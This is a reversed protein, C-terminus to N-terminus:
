FILNILVCILVGFLTPLAAALFTWGLSGTEKKITILTTSCPWHMLTFIMASVANKLTWSNERLLEAASGSEMVDLLSEGGSYIMMAIPMVTENAPFGLIFATLMSGDLGMIRGLPELFAVAYNVLPVGGARVNMLIWIVLGAPFAVAVARLLLKLTRDFLSRVLIKGICPRRYPPLELAFSSPMGRLLTKSLLSTSAFTACIGILIIGTLALASLFAGILGGSGVAFASILTLLAPLRGNCPVFSNTLIALLRERPSDIIRCGVVGAANCGFGMCMTLSQKGCANCCKFPKDLNFAIRPLYGIDELFTFLPFFIAMPPLMVAVTFALTSYAGDVFAARIIEPIHLLEFCRNIAPVFSFLLGSLLESPVGAGSVTIWFCIVLLLLMIPIGIRKSTLIRDIKRDRLDPEGSFESVEGAIEEATRVCDEVRLEEGATPLPRSGSSLSSDILELLPRSGGRKSAATAVVPLSILESLKETDIKIGKREAEDMLNLCLVTRKGLARIGLALTLNRELSTADCVVVILDCASNLLFDRTVEEEPSHALLSYTGPLDVFTVSANRLQAMGSAVEVTKGPWNGTHQNMGTLANFLTSKGVNPNGALAVTYSSKNECNRCKECSGTCRKKM